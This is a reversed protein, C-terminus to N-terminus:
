ISDIHVSLGPPSDSQAETGESEPMEDEEVQTSTAAEGLRRKFEQRMM